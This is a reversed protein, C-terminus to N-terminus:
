SLGAKRKERPRRTRWKKALAIKEALSIEGGAAICYAIVAVAAAIKKM